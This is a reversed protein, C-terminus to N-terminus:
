MLTKLTTKYEEYSLVLTNEDNNKVIQNKDIKKFLSSMSVAGATQILSAM